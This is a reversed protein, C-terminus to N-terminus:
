YQEKRRKMSEIVAKRLEAPEEVIVSAGYGYVWSKFNDLGYVIDEYYLFGNDEYLKGKTRYSLDRRVKEWVNGDKYFKLKVQYPKGIVNLGWVQDLKELLAEDRESLELKASIKEIDSIASLRLARLAHKEVILVAYENDVSDYLLKLPKIKLRTTKNARSTYKLQLCYDNIFANHIIDLKEGYDQRHTFRYNEKVMFPLHYNDEKERQKWANLAQFEEASLNLEVLNDTAKDYIFPVEDLAGKLLLKQLLPINELWDEELRYDKCLKAYVESEEDVTIHLSGEYGALVSLDKRIVALPIGSREYINNITSGYEVEEILAGEQNSFYNLYTQLRFYPNYNREM